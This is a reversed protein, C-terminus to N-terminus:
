LKGERIKWGLADLELKIAHLEVDIRNLSSAIMSINANIAFLTIIILIKYLM